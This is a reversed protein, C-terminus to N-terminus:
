ASGERAGGERAQASAFASLLRARVRATEEELAALPADAASPRAILVVDFAEQAGPLLRARAAERLLRRLRNRLVAGKLRRSVSVGVRWRDQDSPRAFAVIHRGAYVRQARM